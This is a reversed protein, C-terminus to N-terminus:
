VIFFAVFGAMLALFLATLAPGYKGWFTSPTGCTYICATGDCSCVPTLGTKCSGDSNCAGNSNGPKCVGGCPDTGTACTDGTPCTLCCGGAGDPVATPLCGNSCRTPSPTDTCGSAGACCGKAPGATCGAPAYTPVSGDDAVVTFQAPSSTGYRYTGSGYRIVATAPDELLTVTITDGFYVPTGADAGSALTVVWVANVLTPMKQPDKVTLSGAPDNPYVAYLASYGCAVASAATLYVADGSRLPQGRVALPQLPAVVYKDVTLTAVTLADGGSGDQLYTAGSDLDKQTLAVVNGTSANLLSVQGGYHVPMAATGSQPPVDKGTTWWPLPSDTCSSSM